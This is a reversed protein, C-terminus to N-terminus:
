QSYFADDYYYLITISLSCYPIFNTHHLLVLHVIILSSIILFEYYLLAIVLSCYYAIINYSILLQPIMYHYYTVLFEYYPDKSNRSQYMLSCMLLLPTTRFSYNHYLTIM